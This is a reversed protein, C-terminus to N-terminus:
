FRKGVGLGAQNMDLVLKRFLQQDDYETEGSMIMTSKCQPVVQQGVVVLM